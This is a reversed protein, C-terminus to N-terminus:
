IIGPSSSSATPLPPVPPPAITPVPPPKNDDYTISYHTIMRIVGSGGSDAREHQKQQQQQQQQTHRQHHSSAKSDKRKRRAASFSVRESQYKGKEESSGGVVATTDSAHEVHQAQSHAQAHAHWHADFDEGPGATGCTSIVQVQSNSLGNYRLEPGPGNKELDPEDWALTAATIPSGTSPRGPSSMSVSTPILETLSKEQSHHHTCTAFPDHGCGGGTLKKVSDTSSFYGPFAYALPLRCVPLCACIIALNMEIMTWISSDIDYAMDPSKISFNLTQMRLISTITTFVGLAFVVMLAIKQGLPLMSTYIPYMPLALIVFDTSISFGANAYWNATISICTGSVSKDWARSIPTCQWVSAAFTAVMYGIVLALLTLCTARFWKKVFIRLYLFLISIKTLNITLKYFAQAIYFLKLTMLKNSPSINAFHQGFGYSCSAIMLASVATAFVWSVVISGDDWGIGSWSRLKIRAWLRVTVVFTTVAFFVACPIQIQYARSDGALNGTTM